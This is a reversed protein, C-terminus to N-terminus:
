VSYLHNRFVRVHKQEEASLIDTEARCLIRDGSDVRLAGVLVADERVRLQAADVVHALVAHRRTGVAGRAQVEVDLAALAEPRVCGAASVALLTLTLESVGPEGSVGCRGVRALQLVIWKAAAYRCM